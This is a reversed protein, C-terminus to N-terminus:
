PGMQAPDWCNWSGDWVCEWGPNLMPNMPSGMHCAMAGGNPDGGVYMGMGGCTNPVAGPWPQPNPGNWATDPTVNVMGGAHFPDPGSEQHCAMCDVGNHIDHAGVYYEYGTMGTGVPIGHCSNCDSYDPPTCAGTDWGCESNPTLNPYNPTGMHCGEVGGNSDGGIPFGPGGCTGGGGGPWPMDGMSYGSSPEITVIGDVHYPDAGERHCNWCGVAQFSHLNHGGPMETPPMGHCNECSIGPYCAEGALATGTYDSSINGAYDYVCLRYSYSQGATVSTDSFSTDSGLYRQWGSSCDAPPTSGDVRWLRYYNIGSGVDSIEDWRLLIPNANDYIALTGGGPPVRDVKALNQSVKLTESNDAMDQSYYRVEYSCANGAGCDTTMTNSGLVVPTCGAGLCGLYGTTQDVGGGSGDTATLIITIESNRWTAITYDTTTPPTLDIAVVADPNDSNAVSYTQATISSVYGTVTEGENPTASFDYTILYQTTIETSIINLNSFTAVDGSFSASAIFTDSPDYENAITGGDTYLHVASVNATNTGTVELDTVVDTSSGTGNVMQLQFTSIAKNLASDKAFSNAPSSGDYVRGWPTANLTCTIKPEQWTNGYADKLKLWYYYTEGNTLGTHVLNKDTGLYLKNGSYYTVCGVSTSSTSWCIEFPEIPHLGTGNDVGDWDLTCTTDWPTATFHTAVPGDGDVTRVQVQSSISTGGCATAKMRVNVVTANAASVDGATCTYVPGTGSVIAPLWSVGDDISYLCGYVPNDLDEFDMSIAFNEPIYMGDDPMITLSDTVEAPPTGCPVNLLLPFGSNNVQGDSNEVWLYATSGPVLSGFQSTFTVETNTWGTDIQEIITGPNQFDNNETLWIKSTGIGFEDFDEFASGYIRIEEQGDNIQDTIVSDITPYKVILVYYHNTNSLATVTSLSTSFPNTTDTDEALDYTQDSDGLSGPQYGSSLYTFIGSGTGQPDDDEVKIAMGFQTGKALDIPPTIPFEYWPSGMSGPVGIHHVQGSDFIKTAGAPNGAVGGVYIATRLNCSNFARHGFGIIRMNDEPIHMAMYRSMSGYGNQTTGSTFGYYIEAKVHAPCFVGLVTSFFILALFVSYLTCKVKKM